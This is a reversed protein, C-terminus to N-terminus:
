GGAESIMYMEDERAEPDPTPESAIIIELDLALEYASMKWIKIVSDSPEYEPNSFWSATAKRGESVEFVFQHQTRERGPKVAMYNTAQIMIYRIKPMGEVAKGLAAYIEDMPGQMPAHRWMDWKDDEQGRIEDPQPCLDIYTGNRRPGAVWDRDFVWEGHPTVPHFTLGLEELSEFQPGTTPESPFKPWFLEPSALVGTVHVITTKQFVKRIASSVPDEEEAQYLVPPRCSHDFPSSYEVGLNFQELSPLGNIADALNQRRALRLSIDKKETDGFAWAVAKLTKSNILATIRGLARPDINRRFFLTTFAIQSIPVHEISPLIVNGLHLLSRHYRWIQVDNRAFSPGYKMLMTSYDELEIDTASHSQIFVGVPAPMRSASTDRVPWQSLFIFIRAIGISFVGSNHEQEEPTELRSVPEGYYPRLAINFRLTQIHSWRSYRSLIFPAKPLDDIELNISRFTIREVAQRFKSSVVAYRAVAKKHLDQFQPDHSNQSVLFIIKELIPQPLKDM